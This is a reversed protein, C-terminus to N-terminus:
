AGPVRALRDARQALVISVAAVAAGSAFAAATRHRLIVRRWRPALRRPTRLPALALTAAHDLRRELAARFAPDPTVPPLATFVRAAIDMLGAVDDDASRALAEAALAGDTALVEAHLELLRAIESDTIM